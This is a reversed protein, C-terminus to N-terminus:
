ICDAIVEYIKIGEDVAFVSEVIRAGLIYIRRVCFASEIFAVEMLKIGESVAFM